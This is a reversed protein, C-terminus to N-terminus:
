PKANAFLQGMDRIKEMTEDYYPKTAERVRSAWAKVKANGEFLEQEEVARLQELEMLGSLDAVSIEDGLIFPKDQLFYDAIHTVARRVDDKAANVKM